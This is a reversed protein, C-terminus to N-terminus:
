VDFARLIYQDGEVVTRADVARGSQYCYQLSRLNRLTSRPKHTCDYNSTSCYARKGRSLFERRKAIKGQNGMITHTPNAILDTTALIGDFQAKLDAAEEMRFTVRNHDSQINRLVNIEGCILWTVTRGKIVVRRRQELETLLRRMKDHDTSIESSTAFIQPAHSILIDKGQLAYGAHRWEDDFDRWTELLCITNRNENRQQVRRLEYLSLLTWGPFVLLDLNHYANVVESVAETNRLVMEKKDLNVYFSVLGIKIPEGMNRDEEEIPSSLRQIINGIVEYAKRDPFVLMFLM